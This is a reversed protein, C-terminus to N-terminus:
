ACEKEDTWISWVVPRMNKRQILWSSTGDIHSMLMWPLRRGKAQTMAQARHITTIAKTMKVEVAWAHGDPDTAIFDEVATGSNLEAVSWDRESLLQRAQQQGRRGKSREAAGM